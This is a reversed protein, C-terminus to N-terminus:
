FVGMTNLIIQLIIVGISGGLAYYLIKIRAKVEGMENELMQIKDQDSKVISWTDDVESIHQLANVMEYQCEISQLSKQIGEIIESHLAQQNALDDIDNKNNDCNKWIDDIDSIHVQKNINSLKGDIIHISDLIKQIQEKIENVDNENSKVDSKYKKCFEYYDKHLTDIDKLHNINKISNTVEQLSVIEKRLEDVKELLLNEVQNVDNNLQQTADWIIDIDNLHETNTELQNKFDQLIELTAGIQEIAYEAQSIAEQASKVGVVIGEIAGKHISEVTKFITDLQEYIKSVHTNVGSFADQIKTVLGNVDDGKVNARFVGVNEKFHTLTVESPISERQRMLENKNEELNIPELVNKGDVILEM